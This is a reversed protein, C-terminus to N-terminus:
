MFSNCIRGPIFLYVRLGHKSNIVIYRNCSLEAIFESLMSFYRIIYSVLHLSVFLRSDDQPLCYRPRKAPPVATDSSPRAAGSKKPMSESSAQCSIYNYRPKKAQVNRFKRIKRIKLLLFFCNIQM